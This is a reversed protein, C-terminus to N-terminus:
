FLLRARLGAGRRSRYTSSLCLPLPLKLDEKSWAWKRYFIVPCLTVRLLIVSCLHILGLLYGSGWTGRATQFVLYSPLCGGETSCVAPAAEKGGKTCFALKERSPHFPCRTPMNGWCLRTRKWVFPSHTQIHSCGPETEVQSCLL